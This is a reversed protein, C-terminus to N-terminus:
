SAGTYAQLEAYNIITQYIFEFTYVLISFDYRTHRQSPNYIELRLHRWSHPFAFALGPPTGKQTESKSIRNVQLAEGPLFDISGYPIKKVNIKELIDLCFPFIM